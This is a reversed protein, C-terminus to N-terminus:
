RSSPVESSISRPTTPRLPTRTTASELFTSLVPMSTGTSLSRLRLLRTSLHVRMSLDRLYIVMTHYVPISLDESTNPLDFMQITTCLTPASSSACFDRIVVLCLSRAAGTNRISRANGMLQHLQTSRKRNVTSSRRSSGVRCAHWTANHGAFGCLTM